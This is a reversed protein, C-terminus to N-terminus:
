YWVTPSNWVSEGVDIYPPNMSAHVGSRRANRVVSILSWVVASSSATQLCELAARTKSIFASSGQLLIHDVIFRAMILWGLRKRAKHNATDCHTVLFVRKDM